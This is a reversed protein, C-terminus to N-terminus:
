PQMCVFYHFLPQGKIWVQTNGCGDKGVEVPGSAGAPSALGAGLGTAVVFAFLAAILRRRM